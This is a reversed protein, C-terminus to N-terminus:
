CLESYKWVFGGATYRKGKCCKIINSHDIGLEIEADTVTKFEKIFNGNKDFQKVPTSNICGVERGKEKLYSNDRTQTAQKVNDEISVFMCQELCYCKNNGNSKIDKDLAVWENPHNLWYNYGEINSIDKVFNSLLLWDNCVYVGKDGYFKYNVDKKNYCRSIMSYWVTYIRKNLDNKTTWGKPMDNIGIGSVM